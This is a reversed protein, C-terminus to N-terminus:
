NTFLDNLTIIQDIYNIKHINNIVGITTIITTFLHKKTQTHYQFVNKKANMNNADKKTFEYESASFKIECLNITQDNRDIIMDIQAGPLGNEPSALFSSVSSAIGSIGLAKRIPAIHNLCINEFAYGSWTKWQPLDSLQAFDIITNKGIPEIFTLYFLSYPDALRFLTDKVKKGYGNHASIFGSKELEDLIETLMGGNTLKAIKIIELRTVGSRRTALARVVAVHQRYNKFLSAFLRDFENRLYGSQSFCIDRINQMASLGPKLQDLYMAVGGMTMYVQLIQFRNLKVNLYRCYEETEALTFPYLMLLKTIRNHLGGRDNIIKKIMWSASSGCIILLINKQSAWTNWFYGLGTIFGSRSTDLWPLEDIFVVMKDTKNLTELALTLLNFAELWSTPKTPGVFNPFSKNLSFIFNQIQESKNSDQLGTWEFDMHGALVHRVLYTKGVRRRGIIAVMEPKRSALADLLETAQQKRGILVNEM